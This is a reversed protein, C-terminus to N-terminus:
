DLGIKRIENVPIDVILSMNLQQLQVAVRKKNKINVLTGKIGILPGAQIEIKDGVKFLSHHLEVTLENQRLMRKIWDIQEDPIIAAKGEFKVYTVVGQTKLVAEYEKLTIHVFIYGSILPIEVWKKRDSWQRLKRQLPLYAEIGQYDLELLVKKEARSKTYVAYWIKNSPIM